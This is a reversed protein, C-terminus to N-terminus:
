ARELSLKFPTVAATRLRLFARETKELLERAQMLRVRRGKRDSISLPSEPHPRRSGHEPDDALSSELHAPSVRVRPASRGSWPCVEALQPALYDGYYAFAIQHRRRLQSQLRGTIVRLPSERQRQTLQEV